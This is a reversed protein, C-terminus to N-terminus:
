NRWNLVVIIPSAKMAENQRPRVFLFRQGDAQVAYQSWPDPRAIASQFLEVPAAPASRV